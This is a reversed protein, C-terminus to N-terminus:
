GGQPLAWNPAVSGGLLQEAFHEQDAYSAYCGVVFDDVPTLHVAV